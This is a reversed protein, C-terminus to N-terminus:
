RRGHAIVSRDAHVFNPACSAALSKSEVARGAPRGHAHNPHHCVNTITFTPDQRGVAASPKEHAIDSYTVGNHHDVASGVEILRVQGGLKISQTVGEPEDVVVLASAAQRRVPHCGVVDVEGALDVVQVRQAAVEAQGRERQEPM